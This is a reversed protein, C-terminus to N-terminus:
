HKLLIVAAAVETSDHAHLLSQSSMTSLISSHCTLTFRTTKKLFIMLLQFAYLCLLGIVRLMEFLASILQFMKDVSIMSASVVIKRDREYDTGIM